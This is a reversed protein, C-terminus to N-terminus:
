RWKGEGQIRCHDRHMQKKYLAELQDNKKEPAHWKDHGTLFDIDAQNETALIILQSKLLSVNEAGRNFETLICENGQLSWAVPQKQENEWLFRSWRFRSTSLNM